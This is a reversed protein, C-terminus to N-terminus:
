PPLYYKIGMKCVLFCISFQLTHGDWGLGRLMSMTASNSKDEKVAAEMYWALTTRSKTVGPIGLGQEPIDEGQPFCGGGVRTVRTKAM